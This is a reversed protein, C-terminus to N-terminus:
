VSTTGSSHTVVVVSAAAPSTDSANSTAVGLPSAAASSVETRGSQESPSAKATTSSSAVLVCDDRVDKKLFSDQIWFQLANMLCPCAIMVLALEVRPYPRLPAFVWMALDGLPKELAVIFVAIVLKTWLIIALWSALQALWNRSFPMVMPRPTLTSDERSLCLCHVSSHVCRVRIPNGYDGTVMVSTWQCRVALLSFAELFVWNLFVGFTTDM